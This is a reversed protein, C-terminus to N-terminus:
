LLAVLSQANESKSSRREFSGREVPDRIMTAVMLVDIVFLVGVVNILAEHPSVKSPQDLLQIWFWRHVIDVIQLTVFQGHELM